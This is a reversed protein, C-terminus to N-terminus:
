LDIEEEAPNAVEKVKAPKIVTASKNIDNKLITEHYTKDTWHLTYKPNNEPNEAYFKSEFGNINYKTGNIEIQLSLYKQNKGQKIWLGGAKRASLPTEPYNSKYQTETNTQKIM